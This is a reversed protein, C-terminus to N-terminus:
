HHNLSSRYITEIQNLFRSYSLVDNFHQRGATAIANRLRSDTILRRLAESLADADDPPVIIGSKGNEMCEPQGGSSTTVVCVGHRMFELNSLPCSDKVVSPVVGIDAQKMLDRSHSTFGYFHVRDRINLKEAISALKMDYGKPYCSGLIVLHWRLGHLKGLAEMLVACGKSKRVRGSFILLTEGDAIDYRHRLSEVTVHEHQPISNLVVECKAAPFWKNAKLWRRRVFDSVCIVAAVKQYAKRQWAPITKRHTDHRTMIIRALSGTKSITRAVAQVIKLDHVHVIDAESVLEPLILAANFLSARPVRITKFDIQRDRLQSTVAPVGRCAYTVRHGHSELARGLDVVYQEAGGWIKGPLIQLIKM